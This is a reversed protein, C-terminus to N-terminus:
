MIVNRTKDIQLNAPFHGYVLVTVPEHVPTKFRMSLSTHGKRPLDIFDRSQKNFLQFCFLAYGGSFESRSIYNGENAHYKSMVSFMSLYSSVYNGNNFNPMLAAGPRSANDVKFDIYNLNYHQFNYPNKGYDGNYGNASIMAVVVRSPVMSQFINDVSFDYNGTPINFTKIESRMYPYYANTEEFAAAHGILVGPSVLIERAKFTANIIKVKYQEKTTSMLRFSDLTPNMKINIAVGNPIYRNQSGLDICLPGELDWSKGGHTEISRLLLGSNGGQIPNRSNMFGATDKYYGEAQLYTEKPDEEFNILTDFMAKYPYNRGITSSVNIQNLAVEVQQILSHLTLNVFGVHDGDGIASGDAKTICVSMKLRSKHLDIYHPSTGPINFEMTAGSTINGDFKYETEMFREVSTDVPPKSFLALADQHGESHDKLSM